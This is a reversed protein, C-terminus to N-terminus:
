YHKRFYRNWGRDFYNISGWRNREDPWEEEAADVADTSAPEGVTTGTTSMAAVDAAESTPMVATTATPLPAEGPAGEVPM